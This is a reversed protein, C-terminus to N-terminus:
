VEVPGARDADTSRRPFRCPCRASSSPDQPRRRTPARRRGRSTRRRVAAREHPPGARPRTTRSSPRRQAGPPPGARARLCLHQRHKGVRAAGVERLEDVVLPHELVAEELSAGQHRRHGLQQPRFAGLRLRSRSEDRDRRVLLDALRDLQHVTVRDRLERQGRRRARSGRRRPRSAGPDRDARGRTGCRRHAARPRRSPSAAAARSLPPMPRRRRSRAASVAPM